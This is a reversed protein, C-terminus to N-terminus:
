DTLEERGPVPAPENQGKSKPNTVWERKVTSIIKERGLTAIGMAPKSLKQTDDEDHPFPDLQWRTGAAPLYETVIRKFGAFGENKFLRFYVPNKMKSREWRLRLVPREHRALLAAPIVQYQSKKINATKVEGGNEFEEFEDIM